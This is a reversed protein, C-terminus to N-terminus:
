DSVSNIAGIAMATAMIILGRIITTDRIDTPRTMFIGFPV